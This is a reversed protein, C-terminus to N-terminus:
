TDTASTSAKGRVRRARGFLQLARSLCFASATFGVVATALMIPSGHATWASLGSMLGLVVAVMLKDGAERSYRKASYREIADRASSIALQRMAIIDSAREPPLSRKGQAKPPADPCADDASTPCDPKAAPASESDTSAAAASPPPEEAAPESPPPSPAAAPEAPTAGPRSSRQNVRDLLQAMYADIEDSSEDDAAPPTPVDRQPGIPVAPPTDEQPRTVDGEAGEFPVPVM